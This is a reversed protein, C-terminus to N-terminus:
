EHIFRKWNLAVNKEKLKDPLGFFRGPNGKVMTYPPVDKTVVTGAAVFAGRGILVGPVVVVGAGLTVFDEIVPGMPKYAGRMKLPYRDNTLVVNPGIFVRTGIQTHTPIYCNAILKVFDSVQVQGDIVTGSGVLVHSGMHTKERIVVNHGTQFYDGAVVDAYIVSGSRVVSNNGIIAEDCDDCYAMGVVAGHQIVVNEGLRAKGQM